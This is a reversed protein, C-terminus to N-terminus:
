LSWIDCSRWDEVSCRRDTLEPPPNPLSDSGRQSYKEGCSCLTKAPKSDLDCLEVAFGFGLSFNPHPSLIVTPCLHWLCHITITHYIM